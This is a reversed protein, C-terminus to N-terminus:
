SVKRVRLTLGRVEIVRVSEGAGVPGPEAEADWDESGVLVVGRPALNTKAVGTAGVMREIGTLVPKRRALMVQRLAMGTVGVWALAVLAVLWTSLQYGPVRPVLLLSGLVFLGAGGLTLLGHLSLKLELVLLVLGLVVLALGIADVPVLALGVLGVLLALAGMTGTVLGHPAFVEVIIALLGLLVLLYALDPQALGGLLRERWDMDVNTIRVPALALAGGGKFDSIRRGEMQRLLDNLDAAMFDVVGDAVAQDATASVSERVAQEAWDQNRHHAAALVRAYSAEDNLIKESVAGGSPGVPHAAGITTGPAMAAVDSALVILCGASAARAGRPAVYVVVPITANMERQIIQRMSSGLGGPTDLELVVAAAGRREAEGIGRDIYSVAVPGIPGAYRLVVVERARTGTTMGLAALCVAVGSCATPFIRNGRM